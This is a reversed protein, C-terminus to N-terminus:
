HSSEFSKTGTVLIAIRASELLHDTATRCQFRHEFLHFPDRRRIGGNKDLSFGAGAAGGSVFEGCDSYCTPVSGNKRDDAADRAAFRDGRNLGRRRHDPIAPGPCLYAGSGFPPRRCLGRRVFFGARRCAARAM